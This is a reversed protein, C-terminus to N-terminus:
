ESRVSELLGKAQSSHLKCRTVAMRCRIECSANVAAETSASGGPDEPDPQGGSAMM